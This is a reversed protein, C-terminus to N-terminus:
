SRRSGGMAETWLAQPTRGEAEAQQTLNGRLHLLLSAIHDRAGNLPVLLESLAVEGLDGAAFSALAQAKLELLEHELAVLSELDLTPGLELEAVRREISATRLVCAGFTEGHVALRRQLWWRRLFLLAALLTGLVSLTSSISSMNNKTLFPENREVYTTTAPHRELRPPESLVSPGLPPDTVRAFSSAFVADLLPEVVRKSAHVNGVLLLRAGVTHLPADPIAPQSAYTLPPIVVDTVYEQDIQIDDVDGIAQREDEPLLAGLRFADAFPLPVLRYRAERVLTRVVRSPITELRFIADPMAERNGRVTPNVLDALDSEDLSLNANAPGSALGAFTLVARALGATVSGSTGIAVRRGRLAGLSETVAGAIEEKVLLHLAEFYLPAVERLAGPAELHIAGSVLAFEIAGSDVSALADRMSTTEILRTDLGGSAAASLLSEAITARTTGLREATLTVRPNLETPHRLAVALAAVLAGLGLVLPVGGRPRRWKLRREAFTSNASRPLRGIPPDEGTHARRRHVEDKALM